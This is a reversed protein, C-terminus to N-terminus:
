GGLLEASPIRQHESSGTDRVYPHRRDGIYASSHEGSATEPRLSGKETSLARVRPWDREFQRKESRCHLARTTTRWNKIPEAADALSMFSSARKLPSLASM